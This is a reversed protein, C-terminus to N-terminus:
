QFRPELNGIPQLDEAAVQVAVHHNILEITLVFRFDDKREVLTGRLGQLPGSCVFVQTGIPLDRYPEPKMRCIASRLCEIEARPVPIPGRSDGVISLVGPSQLVRTRQSRDIRVFLYTPFLPRLLTVRQRNKWVRTVECTPLFGEVQRLELHRLVARENQPLTYVAYWEREFGTRLCSPVSVHERGEVGRSDQYHLGNIM